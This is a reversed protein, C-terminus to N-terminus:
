RSMFIVKVDAFRRVFQQVTPVLKKKFEDQNSFYLVKEGQTLIAAHVGGARTLHLIAEEVAEKQPAMGFVYLDGAADIGVKGSVRLNEVLRSYYKGMLAEVAGGLESQEFIDEVRKGSFSALRDFIGPRDESRSHAERSEGPRTVSAAITEHGSGAKPDEVDRASNLPQPSSPGAPPLGATRLATMTDKMVSLSDLYVRNLLNELRDVNRAVERAADMAEHRFRISSRYFVVALWIAMVGVILSALAAALVVLDVYARPAVDMGNNRGARSASTGPSGPPGQPGSAGPPGPEGRPGQIGAPGPPGQVGPEGTAGVHNWSIPSEWNRCKEPGAAIRVAGTYKNSCAHIVDKSPEGRAIGAYLLVFFIAVASTLRHM